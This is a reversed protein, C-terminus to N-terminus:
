CVCGTSTSSSFHTVVQCQCALMEGVHSELSSLEILSPTTHRSEHYRNAHLLIGRREDRASCLRLEELFLTRFYSVMFRLIGDARLVFGLVFGGKRNAPATHSSSVVSSHLSSYVILCDRFTEESHEPVRVEAGVDKAAEVVVLVIRAVRGWEAVVTGKYVYGFTSCSDHEFAGEEKAKWHAVRKPVPIPRRHWLWM